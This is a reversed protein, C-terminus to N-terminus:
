PMSSLLVQIFKTPITINSGPSGGTGIEVTQVGLSSLYRFAEEASRDYLPVTLVGLKM